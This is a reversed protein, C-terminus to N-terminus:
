PIKEERKEKAKRSPKLDPKPPSKQPSAEKSGIKGLNGSDPAMKDIISLILTQDGIFDVMVGSKARQDSPHSTVACNILAPDQQSPLILKLLIQSGEPLSVPLPLFMHGSKLSDRVIAFQDASAVKLLMLHKTM